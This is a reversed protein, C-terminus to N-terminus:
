KKSFKKFPDLAATAKGGSFAGYDYGNRSHESEPEWYFVGGFWDFDRTGDIIYQLAESAKEPESAPMGFEVLTVPRSYREHLAQVNSVASRCYPTWDPYAGNSWYSPYLSLGIIDFKGGQADVLDYFWKCSSFDQANSHHLIVQVDPYVAKAAAYGANLFRVFNAADSGSVKGLPWLMGTNVENGVQVWKVDIDNDKLLKLVTTTHSAVADAMKGADYDAWASPVPQKGPDAWSDAYHFDVMLSLGLDRVRKAKTLLDQANCWGDSPNVWVRHRIATCGLDKMLATCEKEAGSENYFKYGKSEMETIWGLDAGLEFSTQETEEPDPDPDPTIIQPHCATLLAAAAFLIRLTKM